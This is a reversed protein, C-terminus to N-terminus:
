INPLQVRQTFDQACDISGHGPFPVFCIRPDASLDDLVRIQGQIWKLHDQYDMLGELSVAESVGCAWCLHPCNM